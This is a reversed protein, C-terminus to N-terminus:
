FFKTHFLGIHVSMRFRFETYQYYCDSIAHDKSHKWVIKDKLQVINQAVPFDFLANKTDDTDNTSSM